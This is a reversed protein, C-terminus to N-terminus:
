RERRSLVLVNRGGEEVFVGYVMGLGLVILGIGWFVVELGFFIVGLGILCFFM